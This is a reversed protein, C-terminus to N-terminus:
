RRIPRRLNAGGGSERVAPAVPFAQPSREILELLARVRAPVMRASPMVASIPMTPPRLAPLVEVLEGSALRDTAMYHPIQGIGM